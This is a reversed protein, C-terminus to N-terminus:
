KNSDKLISNDWADNFLPVVNSTIVPAVEPECIKIIGRACLKLSKNMVSCQFMIKPKLADKRFALYNCVENGGLWEMCYPDSPVTINRKVKIQKM